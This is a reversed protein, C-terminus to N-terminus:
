DSSGRPRCGRPEHQPPPHLGRHRGAPRRPLGCRVPAPALARDHPPVRATALAGEPATQHPRALLRRAKERRKSGKKRRSLRQQAKALRKEARRYQCPNEVTEGEATVL